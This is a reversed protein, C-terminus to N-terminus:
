LVWKQFDEISIDQIKGRLNLSVALDASHWRIRDTKKFPVIGDFTYGKAEVIKRVEAENM